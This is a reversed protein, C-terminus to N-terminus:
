CCRLMELLLLFCRRQLVLHSLKNESNSFAQLVILCGKLIGRLIGNGLGLEGLTEFEERSIMM